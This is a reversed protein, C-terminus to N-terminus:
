WDWRNVGIRSSSQGRQGFRDQGGSRIAFGRRQGRIDRQGVFFQGFILSIPAVAAMTM